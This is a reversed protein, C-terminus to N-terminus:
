KGRDKGCPAQGAGGGNSDIAFEMAVQELGRKPTSFRGADGVQWFGNL